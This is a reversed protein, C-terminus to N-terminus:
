RAYRYGSGSDLLIRQLFALHGRKKSEEVVYVAMEAPSGEHTWSDYAADALIAYSIALTAVCMAERQGSLEKEINM